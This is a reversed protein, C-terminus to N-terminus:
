ARESQSKNEKFPNDCHLSVYQEWPSEVLGEDKHPM